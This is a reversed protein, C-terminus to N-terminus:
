RLHSGQGLGKSESYGVLLVQLNTIFYTEKLLDAGPQRLRRDFAFTLAGFLHIGRNTLQYRPGYSRIHDDVNEGCRAQLFGVDRNERIVEELFHPLKRM